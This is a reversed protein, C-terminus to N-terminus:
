YVVGGLGQSKQYVKSYLARYNTALAQQQAVIAPLLEPPCVVIKGSSTAPVRRRIKRCFQRIDNSLTEM